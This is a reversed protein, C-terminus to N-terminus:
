EAVSEKVLTWGRVSLEDWVVAENSELISLRHHTTRMAEQISLYRSDRDAKSLPLILLVHRYAVL